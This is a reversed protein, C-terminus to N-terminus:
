LNWIHSGSCGYGKLVIYFNQSLNPSCLMYEEIICRNLQVTVSICVPQGLTCLNYPRKMNSTSCKSLPMRLQSTLDLLLCSKTVYWVSQLKEANCISLSSPGKLRAIAGRIVLPPLFSKPVKKSTPFASNYFTFPTYKHRQWLVCKHILHTYEHYFTHSFCIDHAYGDIKGEKQNGKGM